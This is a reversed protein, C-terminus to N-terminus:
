KFHNRKNKNDKPAHQSLRTIQNATATSAADVSIVKIKESNPPHPTLCITQFSSM